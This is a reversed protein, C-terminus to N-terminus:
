IRGGILMYNQWVQWIIVLQVREQCTLEMTSQTPQGLVLQAALQDEWPKGSGPNAFLDNRRVVICIKITHLMFGKPHCLFGRSMNGLPAFLMGLVMSMALVVGAFGNVTPKRFVEVEWKKGSGPNAIVVADLCKLGM